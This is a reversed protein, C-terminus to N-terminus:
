VRREEEEREVWRRLDARVNENTYAIDMLVGNVYLGMAQARGYIEELEQNAQDNVARSWWDNM